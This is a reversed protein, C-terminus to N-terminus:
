LSRAVSQGHLASRRVTFVGIEAGCNANKKMMSVGLLCKRPFFGHLSVDRTTIPGATHGPRLAFFVFVFFLPYSWFYHCVPHEGRGGMIGIKVMNQMNPPERVCKKVTRRHMPAKQTWTIPKRSASCYLNCNATIRATVVNYGFKNRIYSRM